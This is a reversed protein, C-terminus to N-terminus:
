APRRATDPWRCHGEAHDRDLPDHCGCPMPPLRLAAARRARYGRVPTWGQTVTTSAEGARQAAGNGAPRRENTTM